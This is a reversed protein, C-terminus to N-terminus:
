GTEEFPLLRLREFVLGGQRDLNGTLAWLTLIARINQVGSNTYELGTHLLLSTKPKAFDEALREIKKANVWTIKEVKEPPFEKVYEKFEGFGHTWDDAFDADYLGKEMLVHAMGLALAGDTGPRIGVWEDAKEATYSRLPDIVVVKAGQEKAELIRKLNIPPSDTAPNSGWVVIRDSNKFDPFLHDFSAGLTSVPALVRHSNNCISSCTFTNPSGLPFLFNLCVYDHGGVSYIDRLSDEFGGRGSYIAMAEPGYKEVVGKILQASLEFAEEWSVRELKREGRNGIRKMPFRLRDSSYIIEEAHVGRTCVIGLPHGQMPKIRHLRGEKMTIKVGCGSPCIGCLGRKEIEEAM